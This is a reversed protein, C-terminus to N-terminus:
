RVDANVFIRSTQRLSKPSLHKTVQKTVQKTGEMDPTKILSIRSHRITSTHKSAQKRNNICM